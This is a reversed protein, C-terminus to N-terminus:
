KEVTCSMNEDLKVQEGTKANTITATIQIDRQKKNIVQIKADLEVNTKIRLSKTVNEFSVASNDNVEVWEKGVLDIQGNKMSCSFDESLSDNNKTCVGKPSLYLQISSPGLKEDAKRGTLQAINNFGTQFFWSAELNIYTGDFGISGDRNISMSATRFTHLERCNLTEAFSNLSTGLTLTLVALKSVLKM